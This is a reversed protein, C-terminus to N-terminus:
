EAEKLKIFEFTPVRTLGSSDESILLESIRCKSSVGYENEVQVIDGLKFDRGYVFQTNYDIEGDMAEIEKAEQIANFGQERMAAIYESMATPDAKSMDPSEAESEVAFERRNLGSANSDEALIYNKSNITVSGENGDSITRNVEYTVYCANKYGSTSSIYNTSVLNDYEPSFVVFPNTTQDWSHDVGKYVRFGFAGTGQPVVEYEFDYRDCMNEIVDLVVDKYVETKEISTTQWKSTDLLSFNAIKRKANSPNVINANLIKEIATKFDTGTNVQPLVIRRDLISELSRGSVTVRDGETVSTEMVTKEVIMYKESYPIRFYMGPKIDKLFSSDAPLILEFDGVKRSRDAWNLGIYQDVIRVVTYTSDLLEVNM